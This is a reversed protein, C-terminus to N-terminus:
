IQVRDVDLESTHLKMVLLSDLPKEEEEHPTEEEETSEFTNAAALRAGEFYLRGFLEELEDM